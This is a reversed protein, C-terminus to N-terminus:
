HQQRREGTEMLMWTHSGLQALMVIVTLSNEKWDASEAGPSKSQGMGSCIDPAM